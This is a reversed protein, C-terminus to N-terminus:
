RRAARRSLMWYMALAIVLPPYEVWVVWSPETWTSNEADYSDLVAYSLLSTSALVAWPWVGRALAPVLPWLVYWPHVVPSLLVLAGGVHMLLRAPDRCFVAAGACYLAGLGVGVARANEAFAWELGRFLSANFAWAEYYRNFGRLAHEDIVPATLAAGLLAAPLLGLLWRPNRALAVLLVGPLLKVLAGVGALFSTVPGRTVFAATAFLLAIPELHGSGASELAPLPHLLYLTPAWMGVERQRCARVLLAGVGLNCAGSVLGWAAPDEWVAAVLAFLGLAAPPYITSVQRHAVQEWTTNRLPALAVSDPPHAFPNEGALLVRGEWLYRFVDDSYVPGLTWFLGHLALAGFWVWWPITKRQRLTWGLLFAPLSLVFLEQCSLVETM